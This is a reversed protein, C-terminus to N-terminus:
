SYKMSESIGRILLYTLIILEIIHQTLLFYRFDLGAKLFWCYSVPFYSAQITLINLSAYIDLFYLFFHIGNSM